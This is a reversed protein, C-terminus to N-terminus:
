RLVLQSLGQRDSIILSLFLIEVGNLM